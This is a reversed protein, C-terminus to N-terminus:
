IIIIEKIIITNGLAYHVFYTGPRLGAVSFTLSYNGPSVQQEKLLTMVPQGNFDYLTIDVNETSTTTYTIVINNSAPNPYARYTGSSDNNTVPIIVQASASDSICGDTTVRLSYDGNQSVIYRQNNEGPLLTGNEYWQNGINANSILTDNTQTITPTSPTPNIVVTVPEIDSCAAPTAEKIYYTESTTIKDPNTLVTTAGVNTYYSLTMGAPFNSGLTVSPSTIDVTAPTCVPAPNTILLKPEANISLTVPIRIASHCAPSLIKYAEAYYTITGVTNLTPSVVINGGSPTDYWVINSGTTVTAVATLTQVPAQACQTQDGDSVPADIVPCSCTPATVLQTNICGGAATLTLNANTGEAIGSIVWKNSSPNTITGVDSTITGTNTTVYISYTLLDAACQTSDITITPTQNVTITGTLTKQSCTGTTTVTYNFPSGSTLTPTGSIKIVGATYTGTVGAPLGTITAGTGGDDIAYKITDIATNVCVTQAATGIASTLALSADPNVNIMVTDTATAGVSDTVTLIYQTSDTPTAVPNSITSDSLGARPKWSYKYQPYGGSVSASLQVSQASCVATDKGANAKLPLATIKTKIFFIDQAYDTYTNGQVTIQFSNSAPLTSTGVTFPQASSYNGAIFITNSSTDIAMSSGTFSSSSSPNQSNLFVTDILHLTTDVSALMTSSFGERCLIYLNQKRDNVLGVPISFQTPSGINSPLTTSSLITPAPYGHEIITDVPSTFGFPTNFFTDTVDKITTDEKKILADFTTALSSLSSLDYIYKNVLFDAPAGWYGASIFQTQPIGNADLKVFYDGSVYVGNGDTALLNGRDSPYTSPSTVPDLPTFSFSGSGENGLFGYLYITGDPATKIGTLSYV